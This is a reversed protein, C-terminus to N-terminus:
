APQAPESGGSSTSRRSLWTRSRASRGGSRKTLATSGVMNSPSVGGSKRALREANWGAPSRAIARATASASRRSTSGSTSTGVSSSYPSCSTRAGRSTASAICAPM